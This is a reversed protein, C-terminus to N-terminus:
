DADVILKRLMNLATNTAKEINTARNRGFLYKRAIIQQNSTAAIWTLGVPKEETGGGPGAIGSVAVAYDTNYREMIGAAMEEVVERSVAGKERLTEHNVGLMQTKVDNSYAVVSGKFYRSSGSLSVIRSAINGGTCSEATSITQGRSVLLQGVLEELTENGVHVLYDPIIDNLENIKEELTQNLLKPDKDQGSLRLKIIGPSPLYALALNDPLSEQWVKLKEALYAEPLGQTIINKHQYSKQIFAHRFEPVISEKMLRRMEFPVGPMFVFHTYNHTMWIGPATGMQNIFIKSGRPTKSQERNLRTLDYGREALFKKIRDLMAQNEEWQCNFFRTIATRTIDDKTPGLGGSIFVFDSRKSAEELCQVIDQEKDGVSMIRHVDFGNLSLESAMFQANTDAIQGILIEDGITIIETKM